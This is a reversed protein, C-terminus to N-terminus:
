GIDFTGWELFTPFLPSYRSYKSSSMSTWHPYNTEALGIPKLSCIMINEAHIFKHFVVGCLLSFNDFECVLRSKVLTDTVVWHFYRGNLARFPVPLHIAELTTYELLKAIM